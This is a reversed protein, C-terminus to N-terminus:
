LISASQLLTANVLNTMRFNFAIRSSYFTTVHVTQDGTGSKGWYRILNKFCSKQWELKYSSYFNLVINRNNSM